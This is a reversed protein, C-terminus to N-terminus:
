RTVRRRRMVAFGVLGLSLAMLSITKPEPVGTTVVTGQITLAGGNSHSEPILQVAPVLSYTTEGDGAVTPNFSAQLNSSAFGVYGNGTTSGSITVSIEQYERAYPATQFVVLIFTSPSTIDIFNDPNGTYTLQFTGYGINSTVNPPVNVQSNSDPTFTLIAADGTSDSYVIAGPTASCTTGGFNAAFCSSTTNFDITVAGLNGVM